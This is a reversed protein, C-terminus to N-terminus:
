LLFSVPLLHHHHHHHHCRHRHRHRHRHRSLLSYFVFFPYLINNQLKLIITLPVQLDGVPIWLGGAKPRVFVCFVPVDTKQEAVGAKIGQQQEIMRQRKLFEGRQNIPVRGGKGKMELLRQQKAISRIPCIISFSNTSTFLLLSLMSILKM